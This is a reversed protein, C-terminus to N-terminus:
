ARNEASSAGIRMTVRALTHRAMLTSMVSNKGLSPDYLYEVGKMEHMYKTLLEADTKMVYAGDEMVGRLVANRGDGSFQLEYDGRPPTHKYQARSHSLVM